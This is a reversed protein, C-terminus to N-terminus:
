VERGSTWKRMSPHGFLNRSLQYVAPIPPVDQAPPTKKGNSEQHYQM